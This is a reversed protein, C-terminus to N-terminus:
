TATHVVEYVSLCGRSITSKSDHHAAMCSSNMMCGARRRGLSVRDRRKLWRCGAEGLGRQFEGLVNTSDGLGRTSLFGVVPVAAQQARAALPWAAVAGGLLTIFARRRV